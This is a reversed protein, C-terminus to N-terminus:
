FKIKFPIKDAFLHSWYSILAVGYLVVYNPNFKILPYLLIPSIIAAQLTHTIGRHKVYKSSCILTVSLIIIGLLLINKNINILFIPNNLSIYGLITLFLGFFLMIGTMKSIRHDIDPLISFYITIPLALFLLSLNYDFIKFFDTLFIFILSIILGVIIHQKWNM